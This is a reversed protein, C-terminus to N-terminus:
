QIKIGGKAVTLEYIPVEKTERHLALAFRDAFLRQLMLKMEDQSPNGEAKAEIDYHDSDIWGPGGLIQSDRVQYAFRLLSKVTMNSITLRGPTPHVFSSADGTHNPKISAVEFAPQANILAASAVAAIIRLVTKGVGSM